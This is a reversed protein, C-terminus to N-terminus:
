GSRDSSELRRNCVSDKALHLRSPGAPMWAGMTEIEGSATGVVAVPKGFSASARQRQASSNRAGSASRRVPWDTSESRATRLFAEIKEVIASEHMAINRTEGLDNKLDYLQLSGNSGNTRIGKWRGDLIVAQSFGGEHFEFYLFEHRGQDRTRGLLAPAFSISDLNTPATARGLEAGTAMFDGFYGVHESVKGAKVTGPWWAIFPVRIGGDTLERKYGRLPGSPRFREADHGSEKHPGNDSTFIVLTRQELKLRKLEDLVRGVYGDMRTIMAAHGKDPSPWPKDAYPGFDPVEAGNKLERNRENNAHPVVLSLFLFFPQAKSQGIFKVAEDALLDDAYVTGNTAYGGGQDGVPVRDNPLPVKEENRWLYDPYHNHAHHQNLYGFFYDFGHRRPLGVEAAGVDGLGWKGILATRYGAAQLVKAVTVDNSRLSQALPEAKGANGRVRTHGHHQGTMLVSRSPACVTAGAYFQTFRMGERAMRDIRPTQIITQGYCGIEGYGLDDALIFVINPRPPTAVAAAAGFGSSWIGL